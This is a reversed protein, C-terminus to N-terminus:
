GSRRAQRSGPRVVENSGPGLLERTSLLAAPLVLVLLAMEARVEEFHTTLGWVGVMVAGFLVSGVVFRDRRGLGVAALLVPVTFALLPPYRVNMSRATAINSQVWVLMAPLSFRAPADPEPLRWKLLAYTGVAVVGLALTEVSVRRWDKRTVHVFFWLGPLLISDFKVVMSVALAILLPVFRRDRVCALMVIWLFLQPRDWPHFAHLFYTLPLTAAVYLLGVLCLDDGVWRRLYMPLALLAAFLFVTDTLQYTRSVSLGSLRHVAEALYVAGIRVNVSSAGIASWRGGFPAQNVVIGHHVAERKDRLEDSYITANGVWGQMSLTITGVLLLLLLARAARSSSTM